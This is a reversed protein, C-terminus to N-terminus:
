RAQTLADLLEHQRVPKAVAAAFGGALAEQRAQDDVAGIMIPTGDWRRMRLMRLVTAGDFDALHRDVVLYRAEVSAPDSLAARATAFARVDFGRGQLLLQLSRRQDDDGEILVLIDSPRDKARNQPNM